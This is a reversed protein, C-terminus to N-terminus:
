LLIHIYTQICECVCYSTLSRFITKNIKTNMRLWVIVKSISYIKKKQTDMEIYTNLWVFYLISIDVVCFVTCEISECKLADNTNWEKTLIIHKIAEHCLLLTIFWSFFTKPLPLDICIYSIIYSFPRGNLAHRASFFNLFFCELFSSLFM